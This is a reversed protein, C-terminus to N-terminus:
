GARPGRPRVSAARVMLSKRPESGLPEEESEEEHPRRQCVHEQCAAMGEGAPRNVLGGDEARAGRQGEWLTEEGQVHPHGRSRDKSTKETMVYKRPTKLLM